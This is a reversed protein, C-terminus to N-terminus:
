KQQEQKLEHQVVETVGSAGHFCHKQTYCFQLELYPHLSPSNCGLPSCLRMNHSYGRPITIQWQSNYRQPRSCLLACLPPWYANLSHFCKWIDDRTRPVKLDKGAVHFEVAQCRQVGPIPSLIKKREGVEVACRMKERGSGEGCLSQLQWCLAVLKRRIKCSLM